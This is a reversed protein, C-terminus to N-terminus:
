DDPKVFAVPIRKGKQEEWKYLNLNPYKARGEKEIWDNLRDAIPTGDDLKLTNTHFPLIENGTLDLKDEGSAYKDTPRYYCHSVTNNSSDIDFLGLISYAYRRTTYNYVYCNHITGDYLRFCIWAIDRIKKSEIHLNTGFCNVIHGFNSSAIGGLMFPLVNGVKKVTCYNLSTNCIYGKNLLTIGGLTRKTTATHTIFLSDIHCDDVIGRNEGVLAAVHYNATAVLDTNRLTLGRIIGSELVTWFLGYYLRQGSKKPAINLGVLEHGQGDFVDGFEKILEVNQRESETFTISNNLRYTFRGDEETRFQELTYDKYANGNILKTFAIFEDATSIGNGQESIRCRYAIGPMFSQSKLLAHRSNGQLDALEIEISMGTAPPVLFTYKGTEQRTLIIGGSSNPRTEVEATLPSVSSVELSPRFRIRHLSANLAKDVQFTIQAFLHKFSLKINRGTACERHDYYRDSLKGESDYYADDTPPLPPYFAAIRTTPEQMNWQGPLDGKWSIGDYTLTAGQVNIGGQASFSITAGAPLPRSSNESRSHGTSAFGSRIDAEIRLPAAHIAEKEEPACGTFFVSTGFLSCALIQKLTYM